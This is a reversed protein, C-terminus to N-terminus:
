LGGAFPGGGSDAPSRMTGHSEARNEDAKRAARARASMDAGRLQAERRRDLWRRLKGKSQQKAEAM